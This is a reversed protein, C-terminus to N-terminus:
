VYMPNKQINRTFANWHGFLTWRIKNKDKIKLFTWSTRKIAKVMRQISYFRFSIWNGKHIKKIRFLFYNKKETFIKVRISHSYVLNPNM